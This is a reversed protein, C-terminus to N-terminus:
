QQRNAKKASKRLRVVREADIAMEMVMIGSWAVWVVKPIRARGALYNEIDDTPVGLAESLKGVTNEPYIIESIKNFLEIWEEETRKIEPPSALNEKKTPSKFGLDDGALVKGMIARVDACDAFWEGTLRHPAVQEHIFKEFPYTGQVFGLLVPKTALHLGIDKLRREVDDSVGIKIRRGHKIFYIYNPM